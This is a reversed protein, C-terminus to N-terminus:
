RRSLLSMAAATTSTRGETRSDATSSNLATDAHAPLGYLVTDATGQTDYTHGPHQRGDLSTASHTPSGTLFTLTVESHHLATTLM